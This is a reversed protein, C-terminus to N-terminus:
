PTYSEVEAHLLQIASRGNQWSVFARTIMIYEGHTFADLPLDTGVPPRLEVRQGGEVIVFHSRAPANAINGAADLFDTLNNNHGFQVPGLYVVPMFLFNERNQATIDALQVAQPAFTPPTGPEIATIDGATAGTGGVQIQNWPSGEGGAGTVYGTVRVWQGVFGALNVGNAGTAGWVLIGDSPGTGDQVFINANDLADGGLNMGQGSVFGEVTVVQASAVAANQIQNAQAISIVTPPPPPVVGSRITLDNIQHTGTAAITNVGSVVTVSFNSTMLWRLYLRDHGEASAPLFRGQERVDLTSSPVPTLLVTTVGVNNWDSTGGVRYQLQWDRPGTTTSRMRWTVAINTRGATSIATQWWANNAFGDLGSNDNDAANRVNVGTSMMSLVRPTLDSGSQTLFQLLADYQVGSSPRIAVNDPEVVAANFSSPGTFRWAAVLPDLAPVTAEFTHTLTVTRGTNATVTAAQGNITATADSAFVYGPDATLTVTATYATEATFPNNAPNWTVAGTFNADVDVTAATVPTAGTVPPAVMVAASEIDIDPTVDTSFHPEEFTRAVHSTMGQYVHLDSNLFAMGYEHHELEFRVFYAGASLGLSGEWLTLDPGGTFVDDGDEITVPATREGYGDVTWLLLTGTTGAPVTLAWGFTGLGGTPIPALVANVSTFGEGVNVTRPGYTAAMATGIYANVTLEWNGQPLEVQATTAGSAFNVPINDYTAHAFVATFSTFETLVTDPQIARGIDLQGITLSVTGTSDAQPGAPAQCGSLLLLFSAALMLALVGIGGKMTQMNRM